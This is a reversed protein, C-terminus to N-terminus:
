ALGAERRIRERAAPDARHHWAVTTGAYGNARMGAWKLDEGFGDGVQETQREWERERAAEADDLEKIIQDARTMRHKRLHELTRNDFPRFSGDPEQVVMVIREDVGGPAAIDIVVYKQRRGDFVVQLSPDVERVRDTLNPDIYSWRPDGPRPTPM